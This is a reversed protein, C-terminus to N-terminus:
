ALICQTATNRLKGMHTIFKPLLILVHKSYYIIIATMSPLNPTTPPHPPPALLFVSNSIAQPITQSHINLVTKFANASEIHSINPASEVVKSCLLLFWTPWLNKSQCPPYLIDTYRCFFSDAQFPHVCHSPWLFLCSTLSLWSFNHCITSLKYDIRAQIPLWHPAQLLPQVHDCKHAKFVLKFGLINPVTLYSASKHKGGQTIRVM